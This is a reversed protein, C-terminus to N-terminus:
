RGDLKELVKFIMRDMETAKRRVKKDWMSHSGGHLEWEEVLNGDEDIYVQAYHDETPHIDFKKKLFPRIYTEYLEKEEMLVTYTGELQGRVKVREAM